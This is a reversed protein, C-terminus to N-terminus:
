EIALRLQALVSFLRFVCYEARIEANQCNKWPRLFGKMLAIQRGRSEADQAACFHQLYIFFQRKVSGWFPLSYM